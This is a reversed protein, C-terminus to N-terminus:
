SPVKDDNAELYTVCESLCRALSEILTSRLFTFKSNDTKGFTITVDWGIDFYFSHYGGSKVAGDEILKELVSFLFDHTLKDEIQTIHPNKVMWEGMFKKLKKLIELAEETALFPTPKGLWANPDRRMAKEEKILTDEPHEM